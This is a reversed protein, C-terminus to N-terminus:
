VDEKAQLAAESPTARDRWPRFLGYGRYRGRGILVPGRVKQKWWIRAHTQYRCLGAGGEVYPPMSRAHVTGKFFPIPSIELREPAPLLASEIAELVIRALDEDDGRKPYHHLVLPTVSAWAESPESWTGSRLTVSAQEGVARQVEWEWLKDESSRKTKRPWVRLRKEEGDAGLFVPGLAERLAATRGREDRIERPVAIGVGMVHGDAYQAGVYPLPFFAAHPFQCPTGDDNHGSIWAPPPQTTHSMVADRVAGTLELTAGLELAAGDRSKALVIFNEDFPSDFISEETTSQGSKVYGQWHAVAPRESLPAVPFREKMEASLKKKQAGKSEGIKDQLDLFAKMEAANHVGELYRLYGPKAVRLKVTGKPDPHWAGGQGPVGGDSEVPIRIQALSASHGIRTVRFAVRELASRRESGADNAYRMYVTECQLGLSPFSRDQKSRAVIGGHEDNVPVYPTQGFREYSECAHISPPAQAELWELAAREDADGGGDFYAAALAMFVRAPHPPWEAQSNDEFRAAVYRGTLFRIALTTM